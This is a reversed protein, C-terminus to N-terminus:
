YVTKEEVPFITERLFQIIKEVYALGIQSVIVPNQIYKLFLMKSMIYEDETECFGPQGSSFLWQYIKQAIKNSISLPEETRPTYLLHKPRKSDSKGGM